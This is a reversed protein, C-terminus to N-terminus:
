TTPNLFAAVICAESVKFISDNPFDTLWQGNLNIVDGITATAYILPPLPVTMGQHLTSSSPMSFSWPTTVSFPIATFAGAGAAQAMLQFKAQFPYTNQGSTAYFELQARALLLWTGAAPLALVTGINILTMSNTLAQGVNGNWVNLSAPVPLSGQVGAPSVGAGSNVVTGGISNGAYGQNLLVATNTGINVSNVLFYGANQVYIIQGPIVWSANQVYLTATSGIAPVTFNGNTMTYSNSGATGCPSIQNGYAISTGVAANGGLGLSTLQVQTALVGAVQYYGASQVYVPQGVTFWGTPGVINVTVSANVNPVIFGINSGNAAIISFANIGASGPSGPSGPTGPINVPVVTPCPQCCDQLTNM